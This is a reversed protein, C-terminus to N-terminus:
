LTQLPLSSGSLTLTWIEMWLLFVDLPGEMCRWGLFSWQWACIFNYFFIKRFGSTFEALFVHTVEVVPRVKTEQRFGVRSCGPSLKGWGARQGFWLPSGRWWLVSNRPRARECYFALLCLTWITMKQGGPVMLRRSCLGSERRSVLRNPLDHCWIWSTSQLCFDASPLLFALWALM